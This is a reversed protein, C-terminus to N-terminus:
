MTHNTITAKTLETANLVKENNTISGTSHHNFHAVGSMIHNVTVFIICIVFWIGVLVLWIWHKFMSRHRNRADEGFAETFQKRAYYVMVAPILYQIVAGAYSGTFSVLIEVNTSIIAVGFPPILTILPFLIRECPYSDRFLHGLTRLNNRLTVGIIPYTTCLTLVPFLALFYEIFAINTIPHPGNDHFFNLSYLDSLHHFSFVATMSLVASVAFIAVYDGGLVALLHRKNDIPTVLSPLSHHTMFSYVCIGFLTPLGAFNVVQPHVIDYGKSLRIIVLSLMM